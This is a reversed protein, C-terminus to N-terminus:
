WWSPESSVQGGPGLQDGPRLRLRMEIIIILESKTRVHDVGLQSISSAKDLSSYGPQVVTM